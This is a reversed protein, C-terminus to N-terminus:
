EETSFTCRRGERRVPCRARIRNSSLVVSVLEGRTNMLAVELGPPVAGNIFRILFDGQRVQAQVQQLPLRVDIDTSEGPQLEGFMSDSLGPRGLEQYQPHTAIRTGKGDHIHFSNSVFYDHRPVFWAFSATNRIRARLSLVGGDERVVLEATLPSRYTRVIYAGAASSPLLEPLAAIQDAYGSAMTPEKAFSLLPFFFLSCGIWGILARKLGM